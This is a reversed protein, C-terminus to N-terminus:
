RKNYAGWGVWTEEIVVGGENLSVLAVYFMPLPVGAGM